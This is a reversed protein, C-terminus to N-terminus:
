VDCNSGYAIPNETTWQVIVYQTEPNRALFGLASRKAASPHHYFRPYRRAKGGNLWGIMKGQQFLQVKYAMDLDTDCLNLEAKLQAWLVDFKTAATSSSPSVKLHESLPKM